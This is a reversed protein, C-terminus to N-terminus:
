PELNDTLGPLPQKTEMNEEIVISRPNISLEANGNYIPTIEKINRNPNLSTSHIQIIAGNVM